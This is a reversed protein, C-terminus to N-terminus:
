DDCDEDDECPTVLSFVSSEMPGTEFAGESEAICHDCLGLEIDNDHEEGCHFCESMIMIGMM